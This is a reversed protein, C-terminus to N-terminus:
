KISMSQGICEESKAKTISSTSVMPPSAKKVFRCQSSSLLFGDQLSSCHVPQDSIEICRQPFTQATLTLIHRASHCAASAQKEKKDTDGVYFCLIIKDNM